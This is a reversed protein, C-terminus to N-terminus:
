ENDEQIEMESTMGFGYVPQNQTEEVEEESSDFVSTMNLFMEAVTVLMGTDGSETAYKGAIDLIYAAQGIVSELNLEKKGRAISKYRVPNIGSEM